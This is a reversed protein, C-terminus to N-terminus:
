IQFSIGVSSSSSSDFSSSSSSSSDFSSSSSSSTSSSSFALDDGSVTRYRVYTHSSNFQSSTVLNIEDSGAITLSNWLVSTAGDDRVIHINTQNNFLIVSDSNRYEIQGTRRLSFDPLVKQWIIGANWKSLENSDRDLLYIDGSISIEIKDLGVLGTNIFATNVVGAAFTGIWGDSFVLYYTNRDYMAIDVVLKSSIGYSVLRNERDCEIVVFQLDSTTGSFCFNGNYSNITKPVLDSM